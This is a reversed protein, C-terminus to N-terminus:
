ADPYLVLPRTVIHQGFGPVTQWPDLTRAKSLTTEWEGCACVFENFYLDPSRKDTAKGDNGLLQCFTEGWARKGRHTCGGRPGYWGLHDSCYYRGCGGDDAGHMPGCCYALGRDIVAHCGRRDCTARIGYGIQRGYGDKGCYAWGM